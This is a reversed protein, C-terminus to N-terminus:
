TIYLCTSFLLDIVKQDLSLFSTYSYCSLFFAPWPESDQYGSISFWNAQNLDLITHGSIMAYLKLNFGVMNWINCNTFWNLLSGPTSGFIYKSLKTAIQFEYLGCLTEFSAILSLSNGNERSAITLSHNLEKHYFEIVVQSSIVFLSMKFYKQVELITWNM